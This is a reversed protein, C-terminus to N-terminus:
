RPRLACASRAPTDTIANVTAPAADRATASSTSSSGIVTTDLLGTCRALWGGDRTLVLADLSTLSMVLTAVGGAIVVAIALAQGRMRWLDRLLKRTLASM